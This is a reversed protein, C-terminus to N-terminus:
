NIVPIQNVTSRFHASTLDATKILCIVIVLGKISIYAERNNHSIGSNTSKLAVGYNQGMAQHPTQHHKIKVGENPKFVNLNM